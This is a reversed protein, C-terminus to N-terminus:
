FGLAKMLGEQLVKSFNLGAKSAAENLWSPITCNKRVTRTDHKRRYEDFDVTILALTEGESLEISEPRSPLPILKGDDEYDNGMMCIADNAMFLADQLDKGETNVEFDPVYVVYGFDSGPTLVIPYIHKM